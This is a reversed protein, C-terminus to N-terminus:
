WSVNSYRRENKNTETVKEEKSLDDEWRKQNLWTTPHPIYQKDQWQKLKKHEELSNLIINMLEENPKNKVFWKEVNAKGVKRPYSSYFKEFNEKEKINEKEINNNINNDINIQKFKKFASKLNKLPLIESKLVRVRGNFNELKIYGLEKLKSITTSVKTETCQCFEALYKNSAYCGNEGDDLSNIEMLIIKDLANLNRDLWIEKPIWIGKFQRQSEM